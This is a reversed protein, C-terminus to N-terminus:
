QATWGGDIYLTTGTIFDAAPSALYVAAAGVERPDGWRGVPIRELFRRSVEPDDLIAKNLPTAFPGPSLANVRVGHPAWELALTKTLMLVGGKTAAYGSRGPISVHDLMSSLNIVRGSGRKVMHPGVAKAARFTGALNVDVLKKFDDISLDLIPNRINIGASNVLIDIKGFAALAAGVMRSVDADSTVDAAAAVVRGGTDRAIEAAAAEVEARNRAAVMVAAGAEALAQAIARGLGKSGGTVVACKQDLRFLDLINAQTAM